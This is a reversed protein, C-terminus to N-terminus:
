LSCNPTVLLHQATPLPTQQQQPVRMPVTGDEHTQAMSAQAADVQLHRTQSTQTFACGKTTPKHARHNVARSNPPCCLERRCRHGDATHQQNTAPSNAISTTPQAELLAQLWAQALCACGRRLAHPRHAPSSPAAHTRRTGVPIIMRFARMDHM